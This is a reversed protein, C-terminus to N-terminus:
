QPCWQLMATMYDIDTIQHIKSHPLLAAIKNFDETVSLFGDTNITAMHFSVNSKSEDWASYRVVASLEM